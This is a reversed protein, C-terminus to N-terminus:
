LRSSSSGVMPLTMTSPVRYLSSELGILDPFRITLKRMVSSFVVTQQLFNMDLSFYESISSKKFGSSLTFTLPSTTKSVKSLM